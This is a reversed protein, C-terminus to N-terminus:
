GLVMRSLPVVSLKLECNTHVIKNWRIDDELTGEPLAQVGGTLAGTDVFVWSFPDFLM